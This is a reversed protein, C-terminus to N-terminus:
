VQACRLEICTHCYAAHHHRTRKEADVATVDAITCARAPGALSPTNSCITRCPARTQVDPTVPQLLASEASPTHTHTNDQLSLLGAGAPKNSGDTQFSAFSTERAAQM